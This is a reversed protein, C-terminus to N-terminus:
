ITYVIYTIQEGLPPPPPTNIFNFRITHQTHTNHQATTNTHKCKGGPPKIIRASLLCAVVGPYSPSPSDFVTGPRQQQQEHKYHINCQYANTHQAHSAHRLPFTCIHSIHLSHRCTKLLFMALQWNRKDEETSHFEKPCFLSVYNLTVGALLTRKSVFSLM